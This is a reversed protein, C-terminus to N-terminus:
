NASTRLHRHWDFQSCSTTSFVTDELFRRNMDDAIQASQASDGALGLATAALAVVEVNDSLTLADKAQRTALAQHGVLAERLASQALYAAAATASCHRVGAAFRCFLILPDLACCLAWWIFPRTPMASVVLPAAAIPSLRCAM